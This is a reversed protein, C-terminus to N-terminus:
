TSETFGQGQGVKGQHAEAIGGMQMQHKYEEKSWSQRRDLVPKWNNTNSMARRAAGDANINAEAQTSTASADSPAPHHPYTNTNSPNSADM